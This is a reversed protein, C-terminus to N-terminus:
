GNIDLALFLRHTIIAPGDIVIRSSTSVGVSELASDLVALPPLESTLGNERRTYASYPLFPSGAIHSSDYSARTMGVTIVLLNQDRTHAALWQPSVMVPVDQSKAVSSSSAVGVLAAAAITRLSLM